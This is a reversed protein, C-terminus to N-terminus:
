IHWAPEYIFLSSLCFISQPMHWQTGIVGLIRRHPPPVHQTDYLPSLTTFITTIPDDPYLKLKHSPLVIILGSRSESISWFPSNIPYSCVVSLVITIRLKLIFSLLYM